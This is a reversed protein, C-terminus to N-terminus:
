VRRYDAQVAPAELGGMSAPLINFMRMQLGDGPQPEVEIRWGWPESDAVRYTGSAAVLGGSGDGHLTMLDRDMHFSDCWAMQVGGVESAAIM